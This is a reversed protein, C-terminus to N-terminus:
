KLKKYGYVALNGLEEKEQRLVAERTRLDVLKTDLDEKEHRVAGINKEAATIEDKIKVVDRREADLAKLRNQLTASM